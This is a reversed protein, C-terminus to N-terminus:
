ERNIRIEHAGFKQLHSTKRLYKKRYKIVSFFASLFSNSVLGMLLVDSKYMYQCRVEAASERRKIRQIKHGKVHLLEEVRNKTKGEM